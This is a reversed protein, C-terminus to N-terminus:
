LLCLSLWALVRRLCAYWHSDTTKLLINNLGAKTGLVRPVRDPPSVSFDLIYRARSHDSSSIANFHKILNLINLIKTKIVKVIYQALFISNNGQFGSHHGRNEHIFPQSTIILSHTLSPRHHSARPMGPRTLGANMRSMIIDLILILM